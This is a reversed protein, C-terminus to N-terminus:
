NETDLNKSNEEIEKQLKKAKKELSKLNNFNLNKLDLDEILSFVKDINKALNEVKEVKKSM